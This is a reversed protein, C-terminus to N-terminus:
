KDLIKLWTEALTGKARQYEHSNAAEMVECYAWHSENIDTFRVLDNKVNAMGALSASRDAYQNLIRAAEARQINANPKFTGDQYGAIRGNGYAQNIADEFEHGKVDAFPAVKDNKKDIYYLARAFEGRTIPENPRFNGDKDAFMLNKAVMANIAGNYWASPTDKFNPKTKDTMDLNALRAILAAAESRTIMGEPRVTKDVYGYLYKYHRGIEMEQVAKAPETKEGLYWLGRWTIAPASPKKPDSPEPKSPDEPKEKDKWKATVTTNDTVTIEDGVKKDQGNVVWGDFEKNEPATFGNAPLKYTSGKKMTEKDMNGGGGNGAFTVDVMSDKWKATVTTNDTVTIEDGVKKAEGNAVWGDFEKNEPATFKNDPLKYKSGKNLVKSEMDGTGKNADYSVTATELTKTAQDSDLKDTDGELGGNDKATARITGALEINEVSLTIVGTDADVGLGSWKNTDLDRTATVTKEAGSNDKYTITYSLLDTDDGPDKYAPPTITVEGKDTDVKIAPSKPAINKVLDKGQITIKPQAGDNVKYSGDENTEPVFKYDNNPDFNGKVDNGSFIKVNGSDDIQIVAPIGEMGSATGNPLKSVDDVIYAKRIAADIATKDEATLKRPDKVETKEPIVPKVTTTSCSVFKHPEKVSVGVIQDLELSDGAQLTYSFTGDSQLTVDVPKSSDKDVTCKNENCYQGAKDKNVRLVIQVKIGDFPAKGALKGKIVNDVITISDIEPSRSTETVQKIKLDPAEVKGSTSGDTYTVEYYAHEATNISFKVTSIDGAIGTNVNNFMKVAEAQEDENVINSSAQEIWIEGTPMTLTVTSAKSPQATATVEPSKDEGIQQYVTVTDGKAVKVGAPLDVKWKTGRKPTDSLTAKVKGNEGKLTVHVTAIVNNKGVRAKALNGGSITTADYLVPDITPAKVDAKAYVDMAGMVHTLVMVFALLFACLPQLSRRQKDKDKM